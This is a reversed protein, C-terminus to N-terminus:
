VNAIKLPSWLVTYKSTRLLFLFNSHLKTYLDNIFINFLPPGIYEYLLDLITWNIYYPLILLKMLLKLSILASPILRGKYAFLLTYYQKLVYNPKNYYIKVEYMWKSLTCNQNLISHFNVTFLVKLFKPFNNSISIPRYNTRFCQQREQFYACYSCKGM